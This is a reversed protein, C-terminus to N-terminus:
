GEFEVLYRLAVHSPGPVIAEHNRVYGVVAAVAEDLCARERWRPIEISVAKAVPPLGQERVRFVSYGAAVLAATKETDRDLRDRHYYWGDYEIVVAGVLGDVQASHVRGWRVPLRASEVLEPFQQAIGAMLLKEPRSTKASCVSCRRGAVLRHPEAEWEHGKACEWLRKVNSGASVATAPVENKGSYLRAMEPHTTAMDNFGAVVMQAHNPNCAPCGHGDRYRNRIIARWEHGLACGWHVKRGSNACVDDPRLLNKPSWQAVLHPALTALDSVGREPSRGSCVPCGKGYSRDAVRAEWQHGEACVWWRKKNSLPRVGDFPVENRASWEERLAELPTAIM